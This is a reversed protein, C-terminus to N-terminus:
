KISMKKMLSSNQLYGSLTEITSVNEANVFIADGYEGDLNVKTVKVFKM